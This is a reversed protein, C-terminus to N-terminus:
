DLYKRLLLQNGAGTNPSYHVEDMTKQMIFYGLGHNKRKKLAAHINPKPIDQPSFSRGDDRLLITLIQSDFSCTCDIFGLDEAGYAHEIINSCAEDVAMTIEYSEDESFGSEEVFTKVFDCINRLECYKGPFRQSIQKM